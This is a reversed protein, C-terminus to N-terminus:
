KRDRELDYIVKEFYWNIPKNPYKIKAHSILRKATAKDFNVLRLLRKQLNAKGQEIQLNSSKSSNQKLSIFVVILIICALFISLM